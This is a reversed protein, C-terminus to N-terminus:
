PVAMLKLFSNEAAGSKKDPKIENIKKVIKNKCNEEM